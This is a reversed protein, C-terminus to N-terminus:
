YHASLSFTDTEETPGVVEGGLPLTAYFGGLWSHQEVSVDSLFSLLNTCPYSFYVTM